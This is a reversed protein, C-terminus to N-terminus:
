DKNTIITITKQFKVLRKAFFIRQVFWLSQDLRLSGATTPAFFNRECIKECALAPGALFFLRPTM